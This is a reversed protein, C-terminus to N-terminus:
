APEVAGARRLTSLLEEIDAAVSGAEPYAGAILAVIEAPSRTGDCLQWVLAASENLAIVRAQAPNYLLLEDDLKEIRYGDVRRLRGM